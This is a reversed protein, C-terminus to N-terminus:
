ARLELGQPLQSADFSPSVKLYATHENELVTVELAGQLALVEQCLRPGNGDNARWGLVLSQSPEPLMMGSSCALWLIAVVAAALFVAAGGWLGALWGGVSGGCFAGFFQFSSYLGMATGKGGPYVMKSVLSPLSAELLNFAVFFCLLVLAFSWFASGVFAAALMSLGLVAIAAQFVTKTKNKKEAAIMLPLMLVFALGMVPLYVQWHEQAQLGQSALLGPVVVFIAMLIAHLSFIGINLRMLQSDRFCRGLLSGLAQANADRQRHVPTPVLFVVVAVGALALVSTAAFLGSIGLTAAVAPGVVMAVGFSLGISGGIAAMAKSRHQERTLDAMLATLTSAIAGAGQLLRGLIVSFISDASAALWGGAAFLLLGAVIVPKRGIRDSLMGLPLQLLAQGLGYIGLALGVLLPTSHQYHGGYLALVPLLSFLGLMRFAYVLALAAVARREATTM